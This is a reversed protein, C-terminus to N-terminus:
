DTEDMWYCARGSCGDSVRVVDVVNLGNRLQCNVACVEGSLVLGRDDSTYWSYEFPEGFSVDDVIARVCRRCNTYGAGVIRVRLPACLRVEADGNCNDADSVSVNYLGSSLGTATAEESVINGDKNWIYTYPGGDGGTVQTVTASGDSATASSPQIVSVAEIVIPPNSMLLFPITVEEPLSSASDTVTVTYIGDSIDVLTNPNLIGSPIIEGNKRWVFTYPAEGGFATATAAGDSQQGGCSPTITSVGVGLSPNATGVFTLPSGIRVPIPTEITVRVAIGSVNDWNIPTDWTDFVVQGSESGDLVRASMSTIDTNASGSGVIVEITAGASSQLVNLSVGVPNDATLSMPNQKSGCDFAYGKYGIQAEPGSFEAYNDVANITVNQQLARAGIIEPVGDINTDCELTNNAVFIDITQINMYNGM